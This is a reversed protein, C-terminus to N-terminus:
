SSLSNLDGSIQAAADGTAANDSAGADAAADDGSAVAAGSVEQDALSFPLRGYWMAHVADLTGDSTLEGLADEVATALESSGTAAAIGYSDVASLTGAFTVGAYARALYAGSTADCAVYDVEGAALAEFCANVNQYTEQQGIGGARTLTEQSASGDQVGVVAANLDDLTAPVSIGPAAFVATADELYDGFVTVTDNADDVSAGIYIDAEGAAFVDSPSSAQVIALDLGLRQALAAAVDVAYGETSGGNVMAQPADTTDVGVTLTGPAVLLTDDVAQEVQAPEVESLAPTALSCGSVGVVSLALLMACVTRTARAARVRYGSALGGRAPQTWLGASGSRRELADRQALGTKRGGNMNGDM